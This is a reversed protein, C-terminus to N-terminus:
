IKYVTPYFAINYDNNIQTATASVPNAMPFQIQGLTANPEIWNGIAGSGDLMTADATAGDGEIWIVMVDDTTNASVGPHGAPGHNIYVDDLAGGLHYNWCPGCWTASVDLIVTYGADLYDYLNYTGNGNLGATSLWSQYATVTFDPAVSGPALQAQSGFASALIAASLILKKM